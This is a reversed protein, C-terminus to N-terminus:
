FPFAIPMALILCAMATAYDASVDSQWSGHERQTAVLVPAVKRYWEVWRKSTRPKLAQGCYYHAYYFYRQRDPSLGNDLHAVIYSIGREVPRPSRTGTGLLAAVAACTRPFASAERRGARYRFGGDDNQCQEIYGASRAITAAPVSIGAEGCAELALAQCATVSVDADQAFPQYRWGGNAHQSRVILQVATVLKERVDDRQTEGYCRAAFLTAYGHGYMISRTDVEEGAILGNPQAKNLVFDLCRQVQRAHPGARPTSGSAVFALGALSTVAVSAVQGPGELAGDESQHQALYALGRQLAEDSATSRAADPRGLLVAADEGGGTPGTGIFGIWAVIAPWIGRGWGGFVSKSASMVAKDEVAHRTM